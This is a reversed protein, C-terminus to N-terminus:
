LSGITVILLAHFRLALKRNVWHSFIIGWMILDYKQQQQMFSGTINLWQTWRLSPCRNWARVTQESWSLITGNFTHRLIPLFYQGFQWITIHFKSPTLTVVADIHWLFLNTLSKQSLKIIELKFEPFLAKEM